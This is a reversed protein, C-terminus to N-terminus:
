CPDPIGTVSPHPTSRPPPIRFIDTPFHSAAASPLPSNSETAPLPNTHSCTARRFDKSSDIQTTHCPLSRTATTRPSTDPLCARFRSAPSIDPSLLRHHFIDRPELSTMPCNRDRSDTTRTECCRRSWSECYGRRNETHARPKANPQHTKLSQRRPNQIEVQLLSIVFRLMRGTITPVAVTSLKERIRNLVRFYAWSFM